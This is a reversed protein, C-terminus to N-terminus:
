PVPNKVIFKGTYGFSKILQAFGVDSLKKYELVASLETIGKWMEEYKKNSQMLNQLSFYDKEYVHKQVAEVISKDVFILGDEKLQGSINGIERDTGTLGEGGRWVADPNVCAGKIRKPKTNAYAIDGTEKSFQNLKKIHSEVPVSKSFKVSNACLNGSYNYEAYCRCRPHAPPHMGVTGSKNKVSEAGCSKYDAEISITQNNLPSCVSCVRDDRVTKWIKETVGNMRATEYRMYEAAANVETQVILKARNKSLAIGKKRLRKTIQAKTEKKDLGLILQKTIKDKTTQDLSKILTNVRNTIKQRYYEKSLRFTGAEQGLYRTLEYQGSREMTRSLFVNMIKPFQKYRSVSLMLSTMKPHLKKEFVRTKQKKGNLVTAGAVFNLMLNKIPTKPVKELDSDEKKKDKSFGEDRVPVGFVKEYLSYAQNVIGSYIIDEYQSWLVEKTLKEMDSYDTSGEIEALLENDSLDLPSLEAM